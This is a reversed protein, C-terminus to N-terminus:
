RTMEFRENVANVFRARTEEDGFLWFQRPKKRGKVSVTFPATGPGIGTIADWGITRDNARFFAYHLGQDDMKLLAIRRARNSLAPMWLIWVIAMIFYILYVTHSGQLKLITGNLLFVIGSLRYLFIEFKGGMFNALRNYRIACFLYVVGIAVGVMGLTVSATTPADFIDMLAIFLVFASSLLQLRDRRREKEPSLLSFRIETM